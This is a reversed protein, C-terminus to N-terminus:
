LPQTHCVNTYKGGKPDLGKTINSSFLNLESVNRLKHPDARTLVEEHIGTACFITSGDLSYSCERM